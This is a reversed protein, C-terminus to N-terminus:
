NVLNRIANPYSWWYRDGPNPALPCIMPTASFLNFTNDIAPVITKSAFNAESPSTIFDEFLVGHAIFLIVFKKYYEIATNGNRSIWASMDFVDVDAPALRSILDHHFDVLRKKDETETEIEIFKKNDNAKIDIIKKYCVISENKKNKKEFIAMKALGLKDANRTSFTDHLYELIVPKLGCQKSLELFYLFEFDPSAINRFLVARPEDLFVAPIDNNLYEEVKKKLAEDNWRNWIRAKADEPTTYFNNMDLNEITRM